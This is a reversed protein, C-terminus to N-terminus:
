ACHLAGTLAQYKPGIVDAPLMAGLEKLEQAGRSYCDPCLQHSFNALHLRQEGNKGIKSVLVRVDFSLASGNARGVCSQHFYLQGDHSGCSFERARQKANVLFDAAVDAGEDDKTIGELVCQSLFNHGLCRTLRERNGDCVLVTKECLQCVQENVLPM